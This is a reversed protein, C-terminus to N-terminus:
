NVKVFVPTESLAVTYTGKVPIVQSKMTAAGDQLTFLTISTVGPLALPYTGTKGEMSPLWLAYMVKEKNNAKLVMPAKNVLQQPTYEGFEKQFQASYWAVPRKEKPYKGFNRAFFGSTAYIAASAYPDEIYVPDELIYFQLGDVGQFAYTLQDRLVWVGQTNKRSSIYGTASNKIQAAGQESPGVDYGLEGIHVPVTRGVLNLHLNKITQVKGTADPHMDAPIAFRTSNKHQELGSSTTYQHYKVVDWCIDVTGDKRYGRNERCWDIMARYFRPNASVIGGVYANLNPDGKKVGARPGLTGKHGDYFASLFAAHEYPNLYRKRGHWHANLENGAEVGDVLDLGTKKDPTLVLAPNVGKNTGYRVASQFAMQAFALYTAPTLRDRDLNKNFLSKLKGVPNEDSANAKTFVELYNVADNTTRLVYTKGNWTYCLKTDQAVFTTPQKSTFPFDEPNTTGKEPFAGLSSYFAVNGKYPHYANEGNRYEVQNVHSKPYTDTIWSPITKIAQINKVGKEKLRSFGRDQNWDGSHTPAFRYDDKVAEFLHWDDYARNWGMQEFRSLQEKDGPAALTAERGTNDWPFSNVGYMNRFSVRTVPATKPTPLPSYKGIFQIENPYIGADTAHIPDKPMLFVVAKVKQYKAPIPHSLWALYQNGLFDPVAGDIRQGDQLLLQVKLPHTSSGEADHIRIETLEVEMEAPFTFRTETTDMVGKLEFSTPTDKNNGPTGDFWMEFNNESVDLQYAWDPNYPIVGSKRGETAESSNLSM